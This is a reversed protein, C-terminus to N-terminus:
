RIVKFIYDNDYITTGDNNEHQFLIRYYREPQFSKMYLKFYMGEGDASMKTYSTDIPIIEEETYADRVSYYSSTTFYGANIYNSSTTFTRTPYKDRVNVRFLAVDNQNYEKRNRYLSVDLEGSTKASSQYEHISDDWKFVLRPPYITHTDVSFYQIEGFSSSVASEISNPKKIIFGNNEIGDPYTSSAFLSGSWKRVVDLVELDTDFNDSNIFQQSSMFGSGTWWNGGGEQLLSSSISGTTGPYFSVTNGDTFSTATMGATGTDTLTVTTNGATGGTAQTVTVVAGDVTANFRTGAPGSSTNIVNMLNTATAENSTTSEWTGNVSSQDGNVFDYNTGDTAILNIKDTSNLEAYNTITITAYASGDNMWKTKVIDNDRYIWSTGDSSTPLNSYRGKGEHWSQSVPYSEINLISTLAKSQVSYLKLRVDATNSNFNSSGIKNEIVDKIDENSFKILIRTPYHKNGDNQKEKVLELIEDHGSNM